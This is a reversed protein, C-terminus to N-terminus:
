FMAIPNTANAPRYQAIDWHEVICTGNMRYIDALAAPEPKENVKLHIFGTNNNFSWRLVEFDAFPIIGNIHAENSARGQGDFPDHEILNIDVYTEFAKTGNKQTYLAEKFDNFIQRQRAENAPRSPCYPATNTYTRDTNYHYPSALILPLSVLTSLIIPLRM